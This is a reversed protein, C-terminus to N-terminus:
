VDRGGKTPGPLGEGTEVYRMLKARSIRWQHGVKVGPLKGARLLRLVTEYDLHLIAAAEECTLIDTDSM